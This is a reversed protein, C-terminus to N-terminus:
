DIERPRATSRGGDVALIQGQVYSAADSALFSVVAAIEEPQGWPRPARRARSHLERTMDTVIAGPAIANVRIGKHGVEAAVARTFAELGGKSAAYAAQGPGPRQASSSSVNVICGKAQELMPGLVERTLVFAATLNVALVAQWRETSTLAVLQDDVIGANNVLLDVRGAADVTDAVWSKAATESAIDLQRPECIGGAERIEAAV